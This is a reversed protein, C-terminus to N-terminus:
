KAGNPSGQILIQREGTEINRLYVFQSDDLELTFKYDTRPIIHASIDPVIKINVAKLQDMTDVAVVIAKYIGCIMISNRSCQLLSEIFDGKIVASATLNCTENLSQQELDFSLLTLLFTWDDDNGIEYTRSECEKLVLEKFDRKPEAAIYMKPETTM